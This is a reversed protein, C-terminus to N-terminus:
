VLAGADILPQVTELANQESILPYGMINWGSTLPIDFPLEVPNGVINLDFESSVNFYYGETIMMDGINNIWGVYPIEEIANGTEDQIKVLAGADILPQVINELDMETPEVYFSVINWGSQLEIYQEVGIFGYLEFSSSGLSSFTDNGNVISIEVFSIENEEDNDWLKFTIQHGPIFGDIIEETIPNDTSAIISLVSDIEGILTGVGVCIDGDFVGIEDGATM